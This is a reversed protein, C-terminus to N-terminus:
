RSHYTLSATEMNEELEQLGAKAHQRRNLEALTINMADNLAAIALVRTNPRCTLASAEHGGRRFVSRFAADGDSTEAFAQVIATDREQALRDERRELAVHSCQSAVDKIFEVDARKCDGIRQDVKLARTTRVLADAAAHAASVGSSASARRAQEWQTAATKILTFPHKSGAAKADGARQALAVYEAREADTLLNYQRRLKQVVETSLKGGGMGHVAQFANWASPAGQALRLDNREM